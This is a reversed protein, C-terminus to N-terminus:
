GKSPGELALTLLPAVPMPVLEAWKGIKPKCVLMVACNIAHPSRKLLALSHVWISHHHTRSHYSRPMPSHHPHPCYGLDGVPGLITAMISLSSLSLGLCGCVLEEYVDLDDRMLENATCGCRTADPVEPVDGYGFSHRSLYVLM